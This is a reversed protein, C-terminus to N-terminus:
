REEHAPLIFNNMLNTVDVAMADPQDIDGTFTVVTDLDELIFCDQGGYGRAAAIDEVEFWETQIWLQYGYSGGYETPVHPSTADDVYEQSLLREGQWVGEDLLLQGLKAFDEPRLYMGWGGQNVGDRLAPWEVEAIGLPGFLHRDAYAATAMGANHHIIASLLHSSGTNYYFTEGPSTVLPEGLIFAVSDDAAEIRDFSNGPGFDTWALGSTMTLLHAVTINAKEGTLLDAYAPLLELIPQNLDRILGQDLAIGVLVGAYSKTASQIEHPTTRTFGNYYQEVLLEGCHHVQFSDIFNRNSTIWDVAQQLSARDIGHCDPTTGTDTNGPPDSDDSRASDLPVPSDAPKMSPSCGLALLTSALFNRSRCLARFAPQPRASELVPSASTM